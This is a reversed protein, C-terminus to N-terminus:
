IVVILVKFSLHCTLPLKWYRGALQRHRCRRCQVALGGVLEVPSCPLWSSALWLAAKCALRCSVLLLWSLWSIRLLRRIKMFFSVHDHGWSSPAKTQPLIPRPPHRVPWALTITPYESQWDIVKWASTMPGSVSCKLQFSCQLKKWMFNDGSLSGPTCYRLFGTTRYKSAALQIHM